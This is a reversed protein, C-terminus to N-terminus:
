TGYGYPTQNAVDPNSTPNLAQVHDLFNESWEVAAGETIYLLVLIIKKKDNNYIQDNIDLYATTNKL